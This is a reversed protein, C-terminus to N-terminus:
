AAGGRSDTSRSLVYMRCARHFLEGHPAADPTDFIESVIQHAMEHQITLEVEAWTDELAHDASISITRTLPDWLGLRGRGEHLQFTPENLHGALKDHNLSRWGEAVHHLLRRELTRSLDSEIHPNTTVPAGQAARPLAGNIARM